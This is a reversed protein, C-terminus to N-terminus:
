KSESGISKKMFGNPRWDKCYCYKRLHHFEQYVCRAQTGYKNIRSVDSIQFYISFIKMTQKITLKSIFQFFKNKSNKTILEVLSLLFRSQGKNPFSKKACRSKHQSRVIWRRTRNESQSSLSRLHACNECQFRGHLWRPWWVKPFAVTRCSIFIIIEAENKKKSLYNTTIKFFSLVKPLFWNQPGCFKTWIYFTASIVINRPTAIWSSCSNNLLSYWALTMLLFKRGVSVPVGIHSSSHM